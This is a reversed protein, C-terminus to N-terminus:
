RLIMQIEKGLITVKLSKQSLNDATLIKSSHSGELSFYGEADPKGQRWLQGDKGDVEDEETVRGNSIDLVKGNNLNVINFLGPKKTRMNWKQDSISINDKNRLTDNAGNLKWLQSSDSSLCLCHLYTGHIYM